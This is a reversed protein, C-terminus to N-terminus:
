SKIKSAKTQEAMIEAKMRTSGFGLLHFITIPPCGRVNRNKIFGIQYRLFDNEAKLNERLTMPRPECEVQKIHPNM